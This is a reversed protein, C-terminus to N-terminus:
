KDVPHCKKFSIILLGSEKGISFSHEIAKQIYDKSKSVAEVIDLGLALNAAIASSLTCGTGHTNKTNVREGKFEFYEKGNFLIDVAEGELHGGKILVNGVGLDYISKCATKMDEICKIDIKSLLSAEHINPTILTCIPLLYKILCDVAEDKLLKFGSKSIMVPDLVINKAKYLKLRNTVSVIISIRSLM